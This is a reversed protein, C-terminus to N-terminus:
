RTVIVMDCSTTSTTVITCRQHIRRPSPGCNASEGPLLPVEHHDDLFVDLDQACVRVDQNNNAQDVNLILM